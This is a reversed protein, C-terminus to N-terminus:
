RAFNLVSTLLQGRNMRDYNLLVPFREANYTCSGGGLIENPLALIRSAPMAYNWTSTCLPGSVEATAKPADDHADWADGDRSGSRVEWSPLVVLSSPSEASVHSSLKRPCVRTNNKNVPRDETATAFFCHRFVAIKQYSHLHWSADYHGRGEVQKEEVCSTSSGKPSHFRHTDLLHLNLFVQLVKYFQKSLLSFQNQKM